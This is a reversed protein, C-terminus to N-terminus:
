GTMGGRAALKAIAGATLEQSHVTGSFEVERILRPPQARGADIWIVPKRCKLVHAVIDPTGGRGEPGQGDWVAILIDSAAVTAQGVAEFAAGSDRLSGPLEVVADARHLLARFVPTTSADGFTTEYDDAKFPLHAHLAFGVELAAEAFLRDAGEALPSLAVCKADAPLAARLAELVLHLQQAIQAEGVILRNPRHGTVGVVLTRAAIM